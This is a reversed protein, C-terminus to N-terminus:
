RPISLPRRTGSIEMIKCQLELSLVLLLGKLRIKPFDPLTEGGPCPGPRQLGLDDQASWPAVASLAQHRSPEIAENTGLNLIQPVDLL